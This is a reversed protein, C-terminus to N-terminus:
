GAKDIAEKAWNLAIEFQDERNLDSNDLVKADAAVRLPSDQRTSDEHDRQKVNALVEEFTPVEKGAQQLEKYRRKARIEASATMFIKLEADPFVVTGIDRGDMVVGKNKGMAKQQAVLFKRVEPIAAIQSVYQSVEMGRIRSEDDEGNLIAHNKKDGENFVFRITIQSLRKLLEHQKFFGEGVLQSTLAYLTVCRYMAGSDVYSYGLAQALQRALTSKGTSSHGDVAITIKAAM